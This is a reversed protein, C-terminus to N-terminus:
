ASKAPKSGRAAWACLALLGFFSLIVFLLVSAMREIAIGLQLPRAGDVQLGRAFVVASGFQPLIPTVARPALEAALQQSVIRGALRRLAGAEM